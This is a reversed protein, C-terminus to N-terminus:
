TRRNPNKAEYIQPTIKDTAFNKVGLKELERLRNLDNVTWAFIEIKPLNKILKEDILQHFISLNNVQNKNLFNCLIKLDNENKLDECVAVLNAKQGFTKRIKEFIKKAILYDTIFPAFYIQSLNILSKDIEEKVKKLATESNIESLNKFDLWYFFENGHKFYDNLNALSKLESEKPFDHKLFLKEQLFWIDFEIARFNNKYAQKFSEISNQSINKEVFGRHAFLKIM